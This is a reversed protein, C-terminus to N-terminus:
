GQTGSTGLPVGGGYAWRTTDIKRDFVDYGLGPGIIPLYKKSLRQGFRGLRWCLRRGGVFRIICVLKIAHVNNNKEAKNQHL